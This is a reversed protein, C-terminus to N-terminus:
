RKELWERMESIVEENSFSEGAKIENRGNEIAKEQEPTLDYLQKEAADFITQLAKLFDLDNSDKIRAILSKKLQASTSM